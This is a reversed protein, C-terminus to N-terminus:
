LAGRELQALATRAQHTLLAASAGGALKRLLQKAESTGLQELVQIARLARNDATADAGHHAVTRRAGLGGTGHARLAGRDGPPGQRDGPRDRPCSPVLAKSGRWRREALALRGAQGGPLQWAVKGTKLDLFSVGKNGPVVLVNDDPLLAVSDRGRAPPPSSTDPELPPM